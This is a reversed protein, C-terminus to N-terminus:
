EPRVLLRTDYKKRRGGVFSELRGLQRREMLTKEINRRMMKSREDDKTTWVRDQLSTNGYGLVNEVVGKPTGNTTYPLKYQIGNAFFRQKELNLKMPYSKVGSQADEVRKKIVVSSYDSERFEYDKGDSRMNQRSVLAEKSSGNALNM